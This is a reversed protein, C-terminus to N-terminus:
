FLFTPVEPASAKTSESPESPSQCRGERADAGAQARAKNGMREPDQAPQKRLDPTHAEGPTVSKPLVKPFPPWGQAEVGM